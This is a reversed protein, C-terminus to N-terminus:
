RSTHDRRLLKPILSVCLLSVSPSGVYLSGGKATDDSDKRKSSELPIKSACRM